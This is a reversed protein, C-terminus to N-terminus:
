QRKFYKLNLLWEADKYSKKSEYDAIVNEAGPIHAATIWIKNKVCFLWINKVIDNCISSKTTGMKNILQVGVQSDSFIKVHKNQFHTKFSRLSYYVALLEKCNIHLAKEKMDWAGGIKHTNFNAGWSYSSSDCFYELDISPLAIPKEINNANELWWELEQKGDSSIKAPADFNRKNLRLSTVKDNELYRYFLPGLIAALMCSIIIGIVKALYRITPKNIRLLNLLLTKLKQKKEETLTVIM